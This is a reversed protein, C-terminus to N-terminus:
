LGTAFRVRLGAFPSLDAPDRTVFVDYHVHELELRLDYYGISLDDAETGSATVTITGYGPHRFTGSYADMAHSPRTGEVRPEEPTAPADPEAPATRPTLSDAPLDPGERATLAEGSWDRPELGLMRDAVRLAALEPLPTANKNTLVVIGLGDHPYLAMTASFGDINGGHHVRFHGRYSDVFWGLGYSQVGIAPDGPRASIFMSPTQMAQVTGPQLLVTDSVAGEALHLRVWAVMDEVSSNIAGAPAVAQLPKLPVRVVTDEHESYGRAHDPDAESVAVSFNSREMGLPDLLRTRVLDEWSAGGVRAAVEGALVFMLNNYQWATRLGRSSPLHALREVLEARSLSPNAYWIADHRPLG